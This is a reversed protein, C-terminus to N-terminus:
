QEEVSRRRKMFCAVLAALLGTGFLVAFTIVAQANGGVFNVGNWVDSLTPLGLYLHMGFAVGYCICSVVPLFDLFVYDFFASAIEIAAGALILAFTVYSFTRDGADVAIFIIDSVIFLVAAGLAIYFGATRGSVFREKLYGIASM